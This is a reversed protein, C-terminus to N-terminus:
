RDGTLHDIEAGLLNIEDTNCEAWDRLAKHDFLGWNESDEDAEIWASLFSVLTGLAKITEFNTKPGPFYPSFLDNGEALTFGDLNLVAWAWGQVDREGRVDLGDRRVLIFGGVEGVAALVREENQVIMDSHLM